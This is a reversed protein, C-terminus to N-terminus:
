RELCPSGHLADAPQPCLPATTTLPPHSRSTRTQSKVVPHTARMGKSDYRTFKGKTAIAKVNETAMGRSNPAELDEIGPGDGYRSGTIRRYPDPVNGAALRDM